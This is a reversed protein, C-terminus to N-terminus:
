DVQEMNSEEDVVEDENLDPLEEDEEVEDDGFGLAFIAKQLAEVLEKEEPIGKMQAVTEKVLNM